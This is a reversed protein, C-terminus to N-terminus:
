TILRDNDNGKFRKFDLNTSVVDGYTILGIETQSHDVNLAKVLDKAFMKVASFNQRGINESSEM